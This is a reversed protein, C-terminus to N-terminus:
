FEDFFFGRSDKFFELKSFGVVGLAFVDLFKNTVGFVGFLYNFIRDDLLEFYLSYNFAYSIIWSV